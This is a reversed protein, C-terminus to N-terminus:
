HKGIVDLCAFQAGVALVAFHLREAVREVRLCVEEALCVSFLRGILRPAAGRFNRPAASKEKDSFFPPFSLKADAFEARM